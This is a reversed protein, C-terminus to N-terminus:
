EQCINERYSLVYDTWSSFPGTKFSEILEKSYILSFLDVVDRKLKLEYLDSNLDDYFIDVDSKKDQYVRSIDIRGEEDIDLVKIWNSNNNDRVEYHGVFKQIENESKFVDRYDIVDFEDYIESLWQHKLSFNPLLPGKGPEDYTCDSSIYFKHPGEKEFKKLESKVRKMKTKYDYREIEDETPFYFRNPQDLMPWHRIHIGIRDKVLNKIKSELKKDKLVIKDALKDWFSEEIEYPPWKQFLDPSLLHYNKNKDLSKLWNTRLDITSSYDLNHFRDTSTETYPFDLFKLEKWMEEEVLITFKFDNFKNLEYAVAWLQFRNGFGTDEISWGVDGIKLYM